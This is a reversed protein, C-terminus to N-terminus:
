PTYSWRAQYVYQKKFVGGGTVEESPIDVLIWGAPWQVTAQAIPVTFPNSPIAPFSGSYPGAAERGILSLAPATTDVAAITLKPMAVMINGRPWTTAASTGSPYSFGSVNLKFNQLSYIQIESGTIRKVKPAFCGRFVAEQIVTGGQGWRLKSEDMRFNGLGASEGMTYTRGAALSSAPKSVAVILEDWSEADREVREVSIIRSGGTYFGFSNDPM